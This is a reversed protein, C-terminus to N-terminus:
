GTSSNPSRTWAASRGGPQRMTSSGRGSSPGLREGRPDREDPPEARDQRRARRPNRRHPAPGAIPPIPLRFNPIDACKLSDFVAGVNLFQEIQAGGTPGEFSGACFRRTSLRATQDCAPRPEPRPRVRPGRSRLGHRRPENPSIARRRAPSPAGEADLGRLGRPQDAKGDLHRHPRRGLQPITVYRTGARADCRLSTTATSRPHRRRGAAIVDRWESM